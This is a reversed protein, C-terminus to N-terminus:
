PNAKGKNGKREALLQKFDERNRLADLDHDTQLEPLSGFGAAVAKKLIAMARDCDADSLM